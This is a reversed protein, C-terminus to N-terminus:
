NVAELTHYDLYSRVLDVSDVFPKWGDSHGWWELDADYNKVYQRVEEFSAFWRIEGLLKSLVELKEEPTDAREWADCGSCSGYGIVLFGHRSWDYNPYGSDTVIVAHSGQYDMDLDQEIVARVGIAALAELYDTGSM